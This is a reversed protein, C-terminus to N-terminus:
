PFLVFRPRDGLHRRSDDLDSTDLAYTRLLWRSDGGVEDGVAGRGHLCLRNSVVLVSGPEIAVSQAVASCAKAFNKSASEAPGDSEIASVASHSYRVMTGSAADKLVPVDVATHVAGMIDLMGEIFTPQSEIAFQGKKLEAIDGPSLKSLVEDLLMVRTPVAKPNRLGVLTVFDPSPAIRPDSPDTDGNFPFSVADTHGRLGGQSKRAFKGEGEITTLNVFLEGSNESGYSVTEVGLFGHVALAAACALHTGAADPVPTFWGPTEPLEQPDFVDDLLFFPRSQLDERVAAPQGGAQAMADDVAKGLAASLEGPRALAETRQEPTSAQKWATVAARVAAALKPATM